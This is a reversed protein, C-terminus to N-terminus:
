DDLPGFGICWATVSSPDSQLHDKARAAWIHQDEVPYSGTLLSGVGGWNSRAGGGVLRYGQELPCEAVPHPDVESTVSKQIVAVRARELFSRKVGIAFSTVTALNDRLHDKAAAVWSDGGSPCSAFLMAGVGNGYNARAGGGVLIWGEPLAAQCTPHHATQSEQQVVMYDDNSIASGDSMRGVICYATITAPSPKIHDKAAAVWSRFNEGSPFIGTLMNGQPNGTGGCDGQWDVIAGGGFIRWGEPAEISVTPHQSCGSSEKLIQLQLRGVPYTQIIESMLKIEKRM